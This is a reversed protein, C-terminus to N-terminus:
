TGSWASRRRPSPCAASSRSALAAACYRLLELDDSRLPARSAVDLVGVTRGGVTVPLRAESGTVTEAETTFARGIAGSTTELGDRVHWRGGAAVCRLRGGRQLYVAPLLHESPFLHDVVVHAAAAADPAADLALGLLATPPRM